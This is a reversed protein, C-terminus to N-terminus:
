KGVTTEMPFKLNEAKVFYAKVSGVLIKAEVLIPIKNRDDTVWVFLDEGGSFITGEVLLVSFKHCRYKSGDYNEVHEMGLYRGFIEYVRGDIMLHFTIKDGPEMQSFDLSRAYYVATQVDMVGDGLPVISKTFPKNSNEIQTIIQKNPYDFNYKEYAKYGGESTNRTFWYPMLTEADAVSEFYDRVKFFWDYSTLTRGASKFQYAGREGYKLSDVLFEAKGAEVWVFHWNYAVQYYLKEGAKFPLEVPQAPLLIQVSLLVTILPIAFIPLPKSSISRFILFAVTAFHNLKKWIGMFITIWGRWRKPGANSYIKNKDTLPMKKLVKDLVNM